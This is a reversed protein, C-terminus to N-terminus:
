LPCSTCPMAHNYVTVLRYCDMGDDPHCLYNDNVAALGRIERGCHACILVHGRSATPGDQNQYHSGLGPHGYPREAPNSLRFFCLQGIPMGPRLIIPLQAVNSLELTIRGSFGPDIFGATAHTLLGLRGLSSKGEIRAAFEANLSLAETTSGLAFEGPHLIFEDDAQVERYLEPMGKWPDIVTLRHHDFVVFRASLHVDVSAPQVQHASTNDFPYLCIQGHLMAERIDGDSLMM